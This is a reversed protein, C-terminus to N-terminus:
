AMERKGGKKFVGNRKGCQDMSFFGGSTFVKKQLQCHVRLRAKRTGPKEEKEEIFNEGWDRQNAGEKKEFSYTSKKQKPQARKTQSGKTARETSQLRRSEREKRGVIQPCGKEGNSVRDHGSRKPYDRKTTSHIKREPYPGGRGRGSKTSFKKMKEKKERQRRAGSYANMTFTASDV